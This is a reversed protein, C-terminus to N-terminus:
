RAEAARFLELASNYTAPKRGALVAAVVELSERVDRDTYPKEILGIAADVNARATEPQATLLLSPVGLEKLRRALSVGDQVDELSIDVLAM